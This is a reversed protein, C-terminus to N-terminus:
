KLLVAGTFADDRGFDIPGAWSASEGLAHKHQIFNFKLMAPVNPKGQRAFNETLRDNILSKWPISIEGRWVDDKVTKGYEIGADIPQWPDLSARPDGKREVWLNGAPKLAIHLLPGTSGDEYVAQVIMQCVDEGWARRFQYDLFNRGALADNQKSVGDVRFGLYLTEDSYGSYVESRTTAWEIEHRQLSPRSMMKVLPGYQLADEPPWDELSGNIRPARDRRFCIGLPVVFDVPTAQGNFGNTFIARIPSYKGGEVLNPDIQASLGVRAVHYMTLKPINQAQPQVQWGRSMQEFKLTNQDPTTDSANYLDMGVRLSAWMGLGGQQAPILSWFTTRPLITPRELPEMWRLSQLNVDAVKNEDVPQGPVRLAIMRAVLEQGERWALADATGILLSYTPDANQDATIEVPKTLVRAMPLVGVLSGRDKAQQLYEFDQEARRLWKLQLTAVPENLGFWQGPYFWILENPDAPEAITKEQPLGGEWEIMNANRLFAMWAWVRVDSEDGGAGVYPILNRDDTRIWAQPRALEQPWKHLPSTSILGPAACILRATQASDILAPNDTSALQIQDLELPLQVRVRLHAGLIRNTEASLILRNEVATRTTGGLALQVASRDLWTLQDFHSAADAWYQMRPTPSINELYDIPPLPWYGLPVKDAFAEGSMWPAVLSDFDRWDVLPPQMAPWKVTPQLRPIYLQTRHEQALKMLRDLVDVAERNAVDSRNLLAPRLAGFQEPYHIQLSKWDLRNIMQLRRQAPVAFDHVNIAVPLAAMPEEDQGNYLEFNATFKGPQQDAPIRLDIWVLTSQGSGPAHQAPDAPHRPDRLQSLDVQKDKVTLPLLARPMTARSGPMGTHRVFGARNTDVPVDVIQYVRFDSPAISQGQAGSTLKLAVVGDDRAAPLAGLRLTCTIWEDRAGSLEISGGRATVSAVGVEAPSMVGTASAGNTPTNSPNAAVPAPDSPSKTEGCGTVLLFFCCFIGWAISHPSVARYHFCQM